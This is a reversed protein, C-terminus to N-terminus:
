KLMTNEMGYLIMNNRTKGRIVDDRIKKNIIAAHEM